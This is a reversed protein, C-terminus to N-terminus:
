TDVLATPEADGCSRILLLDRLLFTCALVFCFSQRPQKVLPTIWSGFGTRVRPKLGGNTASLGM